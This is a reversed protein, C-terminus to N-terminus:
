KRKFNVKLTLGALNPPVLRITQEDVFEVDHETTQLGLTCQITATQNEEDFELLQWTGQKERLEDGMRTITTLRKGQFRITMASGADMDDPSPMDIRNFVKDATEIEWTGIFKAQNRDMCGTCCVISLLFLMPRGFALANTWRDNKDPQM